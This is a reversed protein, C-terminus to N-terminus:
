ETPYIRDSGAGVAVGPNLLAITLILVIANIEIRNKLHRM